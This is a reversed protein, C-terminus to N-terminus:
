RDSVRDQIWEDMGGDIGRRDSRGNPPPQESVM